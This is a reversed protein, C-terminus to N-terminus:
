DNSFFILIKYKKQKQNFFNYFDLIYKNYNLHWLKFFKLNSLIEDDLIIYNLHKNSLCLIYYQTKCSSFLFKKSKFKKYILIKYNYNEALDVTVTEDCVYKHSSCSSCYSNNITKLM